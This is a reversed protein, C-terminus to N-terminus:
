PCIARWRASRSPSCAWRRRWQWWGTVTPTGAAARAPGPAARPRVARGRCAGQDGLSALTGAAGGFQLARAQDASQRLRIVDRRLADLWGGAKLGFTTPLAHQLWTRASWRRPGTPPPWRRAPM